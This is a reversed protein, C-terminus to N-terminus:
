SSNCRPGRIHWHLDFESWVPSLILIGARVGSLLYPSGEMGYGEKHSSFKACFATFGQNYISNRLHYHYYGHDENKSHQTKLWIKWEGREGEDLPEKTGRWKRGNTTDDTYRLKNINRGAIKIGAQVEDLGANQMIYEAYFSFLCLSLICSQWVGRGIKFWDM